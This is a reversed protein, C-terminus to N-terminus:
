LSSETVAFRHRDSGQVSLALVDSASEWTSGPEFRIEKLLGGERYRYDLCIDSM